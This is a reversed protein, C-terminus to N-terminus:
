NVLESVDVYTRRFRVQDISAGSAGVKEEKGNTGPGDVKNIM